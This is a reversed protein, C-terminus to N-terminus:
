TKIFYDVLTKGESDTIWKKEIFADMTLKLTDKPIANSLEMFYFYNPSIGKLKIEKEVEEVFFSVVRLQVFVSAYEEMIALFEMDSKDVALNFAFDYISMDKAAMDKIGSGMKKFFSLMRDSIESGSKALMKLHVIDVKTMMISIADTDSTELLSRFLVAYEAKSLYTWYSSILDPAPKKQLIAKHYATIQCYFLEMLAETAFLPNQLIKQVTSKEMYKLYYDLLYTFEVDNLVANSIVFPPVKELAENIAKFNPIPRTLERDLELFAPNQRYEIPASSM